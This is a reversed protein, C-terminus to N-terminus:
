AALWVLAGVCVLVACGLVVDAWRTRTWDWDLTEKERHWRVWRALDAATVAVDGVVFVAAPDVRAAGGWVVEEDCREEDM